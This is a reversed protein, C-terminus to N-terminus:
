GEQHDNLIMVSKKKCKPCLPAEEDAQMVMVWHKDPKEPCVWKLTPPIWKQHGALPGYLSKTESREQGKKGVNEKLWKRTYEHKAFLEVIEFTTDQGNEARSVLGKLEEDFEKPLHGLLKKALKPVNGIEKKSM